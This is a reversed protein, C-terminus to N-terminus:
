NDMVIGGTDVTNGALTIAAGTISVSAPTLILSAAGMQVTILLEGEFTINEAKTVQLGAAIDTYSAKSTDVRDGKVLAISAGGV